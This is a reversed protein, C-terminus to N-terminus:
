DRIAIYFAVLWGIISWGLFLNLFFVTEIEDSSRIIAVGFPLMYGATMLTIIIALIIKM